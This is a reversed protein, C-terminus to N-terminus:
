DSYAVILGELLREMDESSLSREWGNREGYRDAIRSFQYLANVPISLILAFARILRESSIFSDYAENAEYSDIVKGHYTRYFRNKDSFLASAESYLYYLDLTLKM